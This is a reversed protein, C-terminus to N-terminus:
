HPGEGSVKRVSDWENLMRLLNTDLDMGVITELSSGDCDFLPWILIYSM